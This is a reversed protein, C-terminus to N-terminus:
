GQAQWQQQYFRQIKDGEWQFLYLWGNDILQRVIDHKASIKEIEAKPAAIYVALRVPTHMWKQGDSLSQM